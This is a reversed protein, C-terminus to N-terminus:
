LRGWSLVSGLLGVLWFCFFPLNLILGIIYYAAPSEKKFLGLFALVSGGFFLILYIVLVYLLWTDDMSLVVCVYSVCWPAIFCGISSKGLKAKM